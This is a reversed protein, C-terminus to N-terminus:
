ETILLLEGEDNRGALLGVGRTGDPQGVALPQRDIRDDPDEAGVGRPFDLTMVANFFLLFSRRSTYTKVSPATM